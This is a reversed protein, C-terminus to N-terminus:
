EGLGHIIESVTVLTFGRDILEPVLKATADVTPQARVKYYRDAGDHMLVVAGDLNTEGTVKRFIGDADQGELYDETNASWGVVKYNLPKLAPHTDITKKVFDNMGGWPARFVRMSFGTLDNVIDHTREIEDKIMKTSELTDAVYLSLKHHNFTHNGIEMGAQHTATVIEPHVVAMCGRIFFTARAGHSRLVNVIGLTAEPFTPGDDYTLAVFNKGTIGRSISLEKM